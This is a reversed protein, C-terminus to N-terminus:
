VGIILRVPNVKEPIGFEIPGEVDDPDVYTGFMRDWISFKSGFNRNLHERATSHHIHHSAPTIIIKELWRELNRNKFRWNAHMWHNGLNNALAM